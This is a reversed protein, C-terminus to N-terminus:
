LSRGRARFRRIDPVKEQGLAAIFAGAADHDNINFIANVVSRRVAEDSDGVM